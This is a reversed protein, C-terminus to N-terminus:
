LCAWPIALMVDFIQIKFLFPPHSAVWEVGGSDAGTEKSEHQDGFLCPLLFM